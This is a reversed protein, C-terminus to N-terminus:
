NITKVLIKEALPIKFFQVKKKIEFIIQYKNLVINQCEVHLIIFSDLLEKM